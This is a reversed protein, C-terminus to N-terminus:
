KVSVLTETAHVIVSEIAESTDTDAFHQCDKLMEVASHLANALREENKTM